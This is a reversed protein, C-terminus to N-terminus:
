GPPDVRTTLPLCGRRLSLIVSGKRQNKVGFEGGGGRKGQLWRVYQKMLVILQVKLVEKNFNKQNKGLIFDPASGSFM